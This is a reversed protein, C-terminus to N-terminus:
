KGNENSLREDIFWCVFRDIGDEFSYQPNYGLVQKSKSIDAYTIDVDGEQKPLRNLKPKIGTTRELEQVMESLSITRSEGLNFIDYRVDKSDVWNLAKIIGDITDDVYTFDRRMSGDGYFPLQMDKYMLDTFKYIALDPRQRPGYVTFFRLCAINMRYLHHYTYCILEGAKKTTAYPSIPNDVLDSESFPTKPNNGYVSSSSAFLLQHANHEKMCELLNITGNINVDAYLHANKISPRVGACAALHIVAKVKHKIFVDNLELYNRIDVKQFQVFNANGYLAKATLRIQSLNEEKFRPDYYDNLSDVICVAYGLSLLRECVHSGIFGAGGTVIIWEMHSDEM